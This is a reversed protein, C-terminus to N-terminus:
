ANATEIAKRKTQDYEKKQSRIRKQQDYWYCTSFEGLTFSPCAFLRENTRDWIATKQKIEGLARRRTVCPLEKYKQLAAANAVANITNESM